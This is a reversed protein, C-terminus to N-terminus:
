AIVIIINQDKMGPQLRQLRPLGARRRGHQERGVVDGGDGDGVSLPCQQERGVCLLLQRQRHLVRHRRRQLPVLNIHRGNSM